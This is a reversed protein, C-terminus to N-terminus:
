AFAWAKFQEFGEVILHGFALAFGLAGIGVVKSLMLAAGDRFMWGLCLMILSLAPLVNGFPIPLFVLFAMLTIWLAWWPRTRDDSLTALRPRLCRAATRYMWAFGHLVRATWTENLRVRGIREPLHRTERRQAWRWALLVMAPSLVTGVGSVPLVCCAALIMLIVATSGEGHLQLLDQLSTTLGQTDTGPASRASRHSEAAHTFIHALHTTM